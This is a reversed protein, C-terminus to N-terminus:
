NQIKVSVNILPKKDYDSTVSNILMVGYKNEPTLFFIIMGSAVGTVDTTGTTANLNITRMKAQAEITSSSVCSNAFVTAANSTTPASFKTARKTTWASIDYIPFITSPAIANYLNAAFKTNGQADKYLTRFIGFDINASNAAANTYSFTNGDRLSFFSPLVKGVTDPFYIVKNPLIKYSANQEVTVKKYGDGIYIGKANLAFVRYSASGDRQITTKLINSYSRREANTPTYTTRELGANVSKEVIVSYMEENGSNITFDIWVESNDNVVKHDVVCRPDSNKFEVTVDEFMNFINDAEKSCSGLIFLSSLALFSKLINKTKM